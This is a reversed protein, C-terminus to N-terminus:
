LQKAWRMIRPLNNIKLQLYVTEEAGFSKYFRALNTDNSGEFDLITKTAAHTQIFKDILFFMAGTERAAASTGSFLYIFRNYFSFFIAGGILISERMVGVVECQDHERAENVLRRLLRYHKEKLNKLKAGKNERFIKIIDDAAPAIIELDHQEAKKLTKITNSSYNKRLEEYGKNLDLEYNINKKLFHKGAAIENESNFNIEAYKFHPPIASIFDETVAATAKEKGFIGLQQTFPPPYLYSIGFKKNWTLPMIYEYDGKVLAEWGPAVVDLYWSCAYILRNGANKVCANWKDRNIEPHTLYAIM